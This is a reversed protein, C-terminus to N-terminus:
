TLLIRLHDSNGSASAAVHTAQLLLTGNFIGVLVDVAISIGVFVSVDGGVDISVGITGWVAAVFLVKGAEMGVTESVESGETPKTCMGAIASAPLKKRMAPVVIVSM